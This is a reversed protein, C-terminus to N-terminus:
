FYISKKLLQYYHDKQKKTSVKNTIPTYEREYRRCMIISKFRRAISQALPQIVSTSNPLIKTQELLIDYYRIKLYAVNKSIETIFYTNKNWKHSNLHFPV